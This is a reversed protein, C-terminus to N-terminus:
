PVWCAFQCVKPSAGLHQESRVYRIGTGAFEDVIKRLDEDSCDDSVIIEVSKLTQELASRLACRLYDARNYVPIAITFRPTM